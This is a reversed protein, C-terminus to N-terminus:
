RGRQRIAEHAAANWALLEKVSLDRWDNAGWGFFRTL